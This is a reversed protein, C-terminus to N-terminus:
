ELPLAWEPKRRPATTCKKDGEAASPGRQNYRPAQSVDTHRKRHIVNTTLLPALWDFPTVVVRPYTNDGEPTSLISGLTENSIQSQSCTDVAVLVLDPAGHIM